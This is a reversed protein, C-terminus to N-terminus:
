PKKPKKSPPVHLNLMRVIARTPITMDGCGQAAGTNISGLHPVVTKADRGDFVLWGVSRCAVVSNDKDELFDWRPAAGRSDVWDIIVLRKDPTM